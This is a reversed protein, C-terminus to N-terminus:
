TNQLAERITEIDADHSFDEAMDGTYYTSSLRYLADNVKNNNNNKKINLLSMIITAKDFDPVYTRVIAKLEDIDIPKDIPRIQREYIKRKKCYLFVNPHEKMFDRIDLSAQASKIGFANMLDRRNFEATREHLWQMRKQKFYKM